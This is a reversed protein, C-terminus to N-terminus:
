PPLLLHVETVELGDQDICHTGPHPHMILGASTKLSCSPHLNKMSLAPTEVSGCFM